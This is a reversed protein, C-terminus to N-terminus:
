DKAMEIVLFHSDESSRLALDEAVSELADRAKLEVGNVELNGELLLLYAQREKKVSVNLTKGADLTAAYLNADAGIEVPAGGGQPAALHLLRNERAQWLFRQDGYRPELGTQQPVIWIQVFRLTDKGQNYESHLVGSGASMYQIEGRGITNRNGLSDGHTLEGDVVYSIIEMNRHPHMDFGGGSTLLDDNVVRLAGFQMREPNHYDAFSFHFLSKLWGHDAKGHEAAPYRKLM